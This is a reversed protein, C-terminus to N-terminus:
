FIKCFVWIMIITYYIVVNTYFDQSVYFLCLTKSLAYKLASRNYVHTKRCYPCSFEINEKQDINKGHRIWDEICNKHFSHNCGLQLYNYQRNIKDLCISCDM